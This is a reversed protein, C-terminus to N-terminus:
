VGDGGSGDDSAVPPASDSNALESLYQALIARDEALMDGLPLATEPSDCYRDVLSLLLKMARADSRLADNVLRRFMVELTSM